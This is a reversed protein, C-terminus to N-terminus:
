PSLGELTKVVRANAAELAAEVVEQVAADIQGPAVGEKTATFPSSRAPILSDKGGQVNYVLVEISAEVGNDIQKLTLKYQVGLGRENKDKAARVELKSSANIAAELSEKMKKPLASKSKDHFTAKVSTGVIKVFTKNAM